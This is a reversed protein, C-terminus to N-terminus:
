MFYIIKGNRLSYKVYQAKYLKFIDFQLIGALNIKSYYILISISTYVDIAGIDEHVQVWLRLWGSNNFMIMFLSACLDDDQTVVPQSSLVTIKKLSSTPDWFPMVYSVIVDSCPRWKFVSRLTRVHVDHYFTGFRGRMSTLTFLHRWIFSSM